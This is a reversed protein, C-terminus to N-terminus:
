KPYESGISSSEIWVPAQRVAPCRAAPQWHWLADLMMVQALDGDKKMPESVPTGIPVDGAAACLPTRSADAYLKTGRAVVVPRYFASDSAIAAFFADLYRKANQRGAADLTARELTQYAASKKAVFEARAADLDARPFLSRTRQVQTLVEVEAQSRSPVFDATLVDNFWPHRGTVMGSVDFDYMLPRAHGGDMAAAAINWLPHRANCRYTDDATM